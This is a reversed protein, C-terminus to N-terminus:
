FNIERYAEIFLSFIEAVSHPEKALHYNPNELPHMHWGKISDSDFGWIRKENKIWAFSLVETKSNYYFKLFSEDLLNIRGKTLFIETNVEINKVFNLKSSESFVESLFSKLDM